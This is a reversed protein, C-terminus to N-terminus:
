GVPQYLFGADGAASVERVANFGFCWSDVTQDLCPV